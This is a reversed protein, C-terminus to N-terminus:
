HLLLKTTQIKSLDAMYVAVFAGGLAGLLVGFGDPGPRPFLGGLLLYVM